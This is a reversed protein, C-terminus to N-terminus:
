TPRECQNTSNCRYGTACDIDAGCPQGQIGLERLVAASANEAKASAKEATGRLSFVVILAIALLAAIIILLEASIQGKREGM